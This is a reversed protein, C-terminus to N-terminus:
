RDHEANAALNRHLLINRIAECKAVPVIGIRAFASRVQNLRGREVDTNKPGKCQALFWGMRDYRCVLCVVNWQDSLYVAYTGENIGYVCEALCNQWKKGLARVEAPCDIRCFGDIESPPLSTPLPLRDIFSRIQAVIQAPQDLCAIDAAIAEFSMGSRNALLQQLGDLFMTLDVIQGCMKLIAPRRLVTPLKHLGIIKSENISATHHLFKAIVRDNLLDVLQRYRQPGLVRDPLHSLARDLGTPQRGFVIELIEKQSRELLFVGAECSIQERMHALALAILHMKPKDITILRKLSGPDSDILPGLRDAVWGLPELLFCDSSWKFDRSKGSPQAM